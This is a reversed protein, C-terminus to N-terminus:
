EGINLLAFDEDTDGTVRHGARTSPEIGWCYGTLSDNACIFKIGHKIPKDPDFLRVPCMTGSYQVKGNDVSNWENIVWNEYWTKTCLDILPRVKHYHDLLKGNV